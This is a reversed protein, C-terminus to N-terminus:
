QDSEEASDGAPLGESLALPASLAAPEFFPPDVPAEVAEPLSPPAQQVAPAAAPEPSISLETVPAAAPDTTPSPVAMPAATVNPTPPASQEAAPAKMPEPAPSPSATPEPTPTPTPTQIPTLTPTLTQTPTPTLTPELTQTPTPMPTLTPTPTQTPTPTLTPEPTQTPTPTLTPTPTQTPTPEPTQTPTQTLTPESTPITTATSEPIPSSTSTPLPDSLISSGPMMMLGPTQPPLVLTITADVSYKETVYRGNPPVNRGVMTYSSKLKVVNINGEAKYAPVNWNSYFYVIINDSSEGPQLNVDQIQAVNVGEGSSGSGALHIASEYMNTGSLRLWFGSFWIPNNQIYEQSYGAPMTFTLDFDLKHSVNDVNVSVSTLEGKYGANWVVNKVSVNSKFVLGNGPKETPEPTPGPIGSLDASLSFSLSKSSYYAGIARSGSLLLFAAILLILRMRRNM